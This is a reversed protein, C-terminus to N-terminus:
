ITWMMLRNRKRVVKYLPPVGGEGRNAPSIAGPERRKIVAIEVGGSGRPALIIFLAKHISAQL